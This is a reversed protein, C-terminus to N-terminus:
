QVDDVYSMASRLLEIAKETNGKEIEYSADEIDSKCNDLAEINDNMTDGRDSYQFNEPLNDFADQEDDRIDSVDDAIVSLEESLSNRLPDNNKIEDFNTEITKIHSELDNVISYLAKRRQKNM